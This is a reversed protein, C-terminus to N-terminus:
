QLALIEQLRARRKPAAQLLEGYVQQAQAALKVARAPDAPLACEAAYFLRNGRWARPMKGSTLTEAERYLSESEACERNKAFVEAADALIMWFSPGVASRRTRADAVAARAIRSASKPDGADATRGALLTQLRIEEFPNVAGPGLRAAERADALAEATRGATAHNQSRIRLLAVQFYRGDPHSAALALGKDAAARADEARGARALMLSQNLLLGARLVPEASAAAELAQEMWAVAAAPKAECQEAAAARATLYEARAIAPIRSSADRLLADGSRFLDLAAPCDARRTLLGGLTARSRLGAEPEGSTNAKALAARAMPEALDERGFERTLHAFDAQITAAADLPITSAADLHDSARRVMEMVTMNPNGSGPVASSTIMWRLFSAIERARVAELNRQHQQWAGYGALVTLAVLAAASVTVLSRNRAAFRSLRYLATPRRASVPRKDLFARLDSAFEAMSAYRNAPHFELAKGTIADLDADGTSVEPQAAGTAREGLAAISTSDRCPLRGAALRHLLLGASYIDCATTAPEARLREPSAYLPTLQETSLTENEALLKATGFDLIRVRGTSDVLVNSPKLDLHVIMARHAAQLADLVDIMLRLRDPVGLAACYEDIPQGEIWEMAFYPRGNADWGSEVFRAIGPHDLTVLARQEREFRALDEPSLLHERMVKVAVTQAVGSADRVARYVIGRGGAGAVALVRFPGIWDPLAALGRPDAPLSARSEADSATLLALVEARLAADAELPELRAAREVAPWTCAM